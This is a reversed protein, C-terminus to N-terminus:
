EQLTFYDLNITKTESYRLLFYDGEIDYYREDPLTTSSTDGNSPMEKDESLRRRHALTLLIRDLNGNRDFWFDTVVGRYLLSEPGQDVAASLYVGDIDQADTSM